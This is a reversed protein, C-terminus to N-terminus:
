VNITKNGLLILSIINHGYLKVRWAVQTL